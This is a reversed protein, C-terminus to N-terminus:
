ESRVIENGVENDHNGIVAFVGYKAKLGKLNEVVRELPMKIKSRDFTQHAVYDGLLVIIDAEQENARAVVERIRAETVFNSGGHIDAIAVIKLGNLQPSWNKVGLKYNRVVLRSPEIIFAWIALSGAILLLAFLGYIFRKPPLKM